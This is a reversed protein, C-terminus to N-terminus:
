PRVFNLKMSDVKQNLNKLCLGITIILKSKAKSPITRDFQRNGKGQFGLSFFSYPPPAQVIQKSAFLEIRSKIIGFFVGDFKHYCIIYM